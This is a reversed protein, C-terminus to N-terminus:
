KLSITNIITTYHRGEEETKTIKFVDPNYSTGRIINMFKRDTYEGESYQDSKIVIKDEIVKMTTNYGFDTKLKNLNSKIETFLKYLVTNESKIEENSCIFFHIIYGSMQIYCGGGVRQNILSLEEMIKLVKTSEYIPYDANKENCHEIGSEKLNITVRYCKKDSPSTPQKFLSGMDGWVGRKLSEISLYGSDITPDINTNDRLDDTIDKIDQDDIEMSERILDIFRQIKYYNM